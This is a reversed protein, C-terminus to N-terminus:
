LENKIITLYEAIIKEILNKTQGQDSFPYYLFELTKIKRPLWQGYILEIRYICFKEGRRKYNTFDQHLSDLASYTNTDLFITTPKFDVKRFRRKEKKRYWFTSDKLNYVLQHNFYIDTYPKCKSCLINFNGKSIRISQPLVTQASVKGILTLLFITSIIKLIKM